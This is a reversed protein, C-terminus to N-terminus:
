VERTFGRAVGSLKGRIPSITTFAHHKTATTATAANVTSEPDARAAPGRVM